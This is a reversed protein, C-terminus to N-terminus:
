VSRVFTTDGRNGSAAANLSTFGDGSSLMLVPKLSEVVTTAILITMAVAAVGSLFSRIRPSMEHNM